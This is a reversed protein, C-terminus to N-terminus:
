RRVGGGAAQRKRKEELERKRKREEKRKKKEEDSLKKKRASDVAHATSAATVFGGFMAGTLTLIEAGSSGWDPSSLYSASFVALAGGIGFVM